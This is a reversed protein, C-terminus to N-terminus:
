TTMNLLGRVTVLMYMALRAKASMMMPINAMGNWNWAIRRWRHASGGKIHLTVHSRIERYLHICFTAVKMLFAASVVFLILRMGSIIYCM